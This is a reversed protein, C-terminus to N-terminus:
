SDQLVDNSYYHPATTVVDPNDANDNGVVGHAELAEGAKEDLSDQKLYPSIANTKYDIKVSQHTPSQNGRTAPQLLM